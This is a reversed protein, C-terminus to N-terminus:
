LIFHRPSFKVQIGNGAQFTSGAQAVKVAHLLRRLQPRTLKAHTVRRLCEIAAKEPIHTFFYRSYEPGGGVLRAVEDDIHNRLEKQQAHLAHLQRKEDDSVVHMRKRLRNRLYMDSSNTSDERWNIGHTQAYELLSQKNMHLLPRHIDSALVALGRWGTGRAVNIAVTEVLDDSHHATVIRANHKKAISRLFAYRRSRAHEESTGAGLEERTHEFLLGYREATEKVLAADFHSDERIGHDFHAVILEHEGEQVLMDLLVMSDVGGSVAVVYKM